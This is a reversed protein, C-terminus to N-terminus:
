HVGYRRVPGKAESTHKGKNHGHSPRSYHGIEDVEAFIRELDDDLREDNKQRAMGLPDVGLEPAFIGVAGAVSDLRDDHFLSDKERTLHTFQYMLSYRHRTEEADMQMISRYDEEVVAKAVVLRHQQSIPELVSLMRLEKAVLGVKVEEMSTGGAHASPVHRNHDKWAKELVPQLLALFMGDGYNSEIFLEAVNFMVCTDALLKLTDPSYGDRRAVVKLLFLYGNLGALVSLATEDAGRGSTDVFGIIRDYFSYGDGAHAPGHYYDGEFGLVPLDRLISEEASSWVPYDPGRRPDLGMVILDRVKLPYKEADALSTDLMYQLAFTSKGLSLRRKELDDDTFRSPEASTGALKPDAKLRKTFYPALKAGYLATQKRNPFLGPWIRITYGRQALTNYLSAESHPTGLFKIVGGPMLISDFEKVGEAIKERMLVTLSNTNTEVDDPVIVTARFGVIQGGIGAAHFSPSQAPIAPGVDFAQGSQRQDPGPQLHQLLTWDRILALCTNTFAVARKLSGSVVLVKHQPDCYLLWLVYASTIYSKGCGRFAMIISRDPGHQLYFAISLQLPTPDPLGLYRWMLVLFLRFDAKIPDVPSASQAAQAPRPAAERVVGATASVSPRIDGSAERVAAQAQLPDFLTPM